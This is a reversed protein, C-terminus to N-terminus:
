KQHIIKRFDWSYSGGTKKLCEGNRRFSSNPCLACEQASFMRIGNKRYVPDRGIADGCKCNVPQLQLPKAPKTFVTVNSTMPPAPKPPLNTKGQVPTAVVAPVTKASSQSRKPRDSYLAEVRDEEESITFVPEDLANEVDIIQEKGAMSAQRIIALAVLFILVFALPAPIM